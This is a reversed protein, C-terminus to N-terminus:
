RGNIEEVEIADSFCKSMCLKGCENIEFMIDGNDNSILDLCDGNCMGACNLFNEEFNIESIKYRTNPKAESLKQREM